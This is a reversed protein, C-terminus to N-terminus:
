EDWNRCELAEKCELVLVAASAEGPCRWLEWASFGISPGFCVRSLSLSLVGWIRAPSGVYHWILRWSFPFRSVFLFRVRKDGGGICTVRARSACSQKCLEWQGVSDKTRTAPAATLVLARAATTQRAEPIPALRAAGPAAMAMAAVCSAMAVLEECRRVLCECVLGAVVFSSSSSDSFFKCLSLAFCRLNRTGWIPNLEIWHWTLCM